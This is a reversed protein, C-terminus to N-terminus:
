QQSAVKPSEARGADHKELVKSGLPLLATSAGVGADAIVAALVREMVPHTGPYVSSM